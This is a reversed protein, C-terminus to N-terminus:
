AAGYAAPDPDDLLEFPGHWGCPAEEGGNSAILTQGMVELEVTM